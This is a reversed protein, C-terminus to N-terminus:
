GERDILALAQRAKIIAPHEVWRERDRTTRAGLRGDVGVLNELAALADELAERLGEEVASGKERPASVEGGRM